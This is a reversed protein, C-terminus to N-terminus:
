CTAQLDELTYQLSILLPFSLNILTALDRHFCLSLQANILM